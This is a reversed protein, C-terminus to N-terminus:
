HPTAPRRPVVTRSRWRLASGLGGFGLLMLAWTSPEPIAVAREGEFDGSFAITAGDPAVFRFGPLGAESVPLIGEGLTFNAVSGIAGGPFAGMFQAKLRAALEPDVAELWPMELASGSSSIVGSALVFSPDLPLGELQVSFRYRTFADITLDTFSLGFLFDVDETLQDARGDAALAKKSDVTFTGNYGALGRGLARVGDPKAVTTPDVDVTLVPIGLGLAEAKAYGRALDDVNGTDATYTAKLAGTNCSAPASPTSVDSKTTVARGFGCAIAGGTGGPIVRVGGVSSSAGFLMSAALCPGGLLLAAAM